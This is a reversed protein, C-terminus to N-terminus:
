CYEKLDCDLAGILQSFVAAKNEDSLAKYNTGLQDLSFGNVFFDQYPLRSSLLDKLLMRKGPETGILHNIEANANPQLSGARKKEQEDSATHCQSSTGFSDEVDNKAENPAQEPDQIDEVFSKVKKFPDTVVQNTFRRPLHKKLKKLRWHSKPDLHHYKFAEKIYSSITQQNVLDNKILGQDQQTLHNLLTGNKNRSHAIDMQITSKSPQMMKMTSKSRPFQEDIHLIMDKLKANM